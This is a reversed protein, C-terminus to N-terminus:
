AIEERAVTAPLPLSAALRFGRDAAPGAELRGGVAALREALGALGNGPGSEAPGRGDDRIELSLRNEKRRLVIGASSARSHRLLNTTGERLIWGLLADLDAPLREAEVRATVEIGAAALRHRASDLEEAFSRRRYGTVAERVESLAQRTVQEIDAVERAAPSGPEMLRGALQGKLSIVSLSHGLLDHLDRAIRLREETVALRALEERAQRLEIVLTMVRRHFWLMLGLFFDMSLGTVIENLRDSAPALGLYQPNRFEALAGLATVAAIAPVAWRIPVCVACAISVYILLGKYQGGLVLALCVGVAVVGALWWAIERFPRTTAQALWYARIWLAGMAVQALVTFTVAAAGYHRHALDSLPYAHFAQMLLLYGLWRGRRVKGAPSMAALIPTDSPM